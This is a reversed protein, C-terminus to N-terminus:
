LEGIFNTFVKENRLHLGYAYLNALYTVFTSSITTKLNIMLIILIITLGNTTPEKKIGIYALRRTQHFRNFDFINMYEVWCNGYIRRM